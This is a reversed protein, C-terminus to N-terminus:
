MEVDLMEWNNFSKLQSWYQSTTLHEKFAQKFDEKDSVTRDAGDEVLQGEWSPDWEVMDFFRWAADGNGAYILDLMYKWVYTIFSNKNKKVYSLMEADTPADKRMLDEAFVYAGDGYRLIVKPAPSEGFSAWWDMFTCDHGIVEPKGDKDVDEFKVGDALGKIEALVSFDDVVSLIEYSNSCSDKASSVQVVMDAKGDGTIDAGAQPLKADGGEVNYAISEKPRVEQTYIKRGNKLVELVEGGDANKQTKIQLGEMAKAALKAKDGQKKIGDAPKIKPTEAPAATAAAPPADPVAAKQAKCSCRALLFIIVLIVVATIVIVTKKKPM